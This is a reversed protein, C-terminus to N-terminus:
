ATHPELKTLRQEHDDVADNLPTIADGVGAFGKGMEKQMNLFGTDIKDGLEKKLNQETQSASIRILQKLDDFQTDTM